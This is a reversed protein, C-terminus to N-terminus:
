GAVKPNCLALRRVIDEAPILGMRIAAHIMEHPPVSADANMAVRILNRAQEYSGM